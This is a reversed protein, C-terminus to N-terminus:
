SAALANEQRNRHFHVFASMARAARGITPYVPIRAEILREKEQIIARWRWEEPVDAAGLVVAFPKNSKEAIRIFSDVTKRMADRGEPRDLAWDEGVNAIFVDYEPSKSMLELMREGTLGSGGLISGDVPNSVWDWVTPAESKLTERVAAPLPVVMLGAEECEDASLVTRGGGGGVAGVGLGTAPPLFLFALLLDAMEDLTRVAIAGAQRLALAWIDQAGALSATHSAVARTGAQTRGAKLIIVPKTAAARRLARFFRRGDRVGEIYGAIVRSEPDQAFYDLLDTENLDLANGYSIVKSFRVGRLSAHYSLEGANGGSQSFFAAAGSDKPLNSRFSLGVRPHYIGMCNPGIIRIGAQRARRLLEEEMRAADRRGTESFRATYFHIVRVGKAACEDILELTLTAPICSIVYDVPGPAATLSPYVPLGLVETLRPNVLYIPGQFSYDLLHRVYQYGQSQPNDSAGVIAVSRPYFAPELDALISSGEGKDVAM